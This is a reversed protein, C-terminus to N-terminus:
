WATFFLGSLCSGGGRFVDKRGCAMDSLRGSLGHDKLADLLDNIEKEHLHAMLLSKYYPIFDPNRMIEQQIKNRYIYERRDKFKIGAEQIIRCKNELEDMPEQRTFALSFGANKLCSVIEVRKVIKLM